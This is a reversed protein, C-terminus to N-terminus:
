PMEGSTEPQTLRSFREHWARVESQVQTMAAEPSEATAEFRQSYESQGIKISVTCHFRYLRPSNGWSELRYYTAGLRDLEEQLSQTASSVLAAPKSAPITLRESPLPMEEGSRAAPSQFGLPTSPQRIFEAPVEYQATELQSPQSTTPQQFSALRTPRSSATTPVQSQPLMGFRDLDSTGHAMSNSDPSAEKEPWIGKLAGQVGEPMIAVVPLGVLFLLVIVARITTFETKM